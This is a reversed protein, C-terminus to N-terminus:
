KDKIKFTLISFQNIDIEHVVSEKVAAALLKKVKNEAALQKGYIDVIPKNRRWDMVVYVTFAGLKCKKGKERLGRIIPERYAKYTEKSGKYKAKNVLDILRDLTLNIKMFVEVNLGGDRQM